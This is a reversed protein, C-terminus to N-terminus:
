GGHVASDRWIHHYWYICEGIPGTLLILIVWHPIRDKCNPNRAAHAIFYVTVATFFLSAALGIVNAIVVYDIFDQLDRTPPTTKIVYFFAGVFLVTFPVPSIAAALLGIKAPTKM